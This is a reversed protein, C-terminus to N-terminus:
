GVPPHIPHDAELVSYAVDTSVKQSKVVPNSTFLVLLSVSFLLAAIKKM